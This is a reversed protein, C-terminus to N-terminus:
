RTTTTGGLATLERLESASVPGDASAPYKNLRVFIKGSGERKANEVNHRATVLYSHSDPPRTESEVTVFFGTGAPVIGGPREVCLYVASFLIQDPLRM